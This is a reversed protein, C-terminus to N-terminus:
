LANQVGFRLIQTPVVFMNSLTKVRVFGKDQARRISAEFDDFDYYKVLEKTEDTNNLHGIFWNSTNKLINKQISSVEQTVYVFGIALKAGEKATRVWVDRTDLKDGSPLLNHAEEAYVLISPPSKGSTFAAMNNKFIKWMVREAAKRNIEPDGASQDVIVLRGAVLDDYIDDTYDTSVSGSHFVTTRGILKVGNPYELLGILKKFNEDAWDDGSAGSRGKKGGVEQGRYWAEFSTYNPTKMFLRLGNFATALRVWHPLPAKFTLAASQIEPENNGSYDRMARILESNFMGKTVAGLGEPVEYGAKALIARYALVRRKHRVTASRDDPSPAVLSVDIFSKAYISSEGLLADNIIEKGIQLNEEEYFNVKMMRRDKDSPHTQTGYTVVDKKVGKDHGRWVNRIASPVANGDVDQVNDNAYEGNYDFILQGIRGSEKNQFRLDFVSKVIIKTTNSKGTRTMGFLATKQGLLDAPAIKVPVDAVGQHARHTSAYRVDGVHFEFKALPHNLVREADRYNVIRLLADGNPKYVKLGQNPYFNSIDCGFKLVLKRDNETGVEDVYFTGVIRCRLGAFSLVHATQPDMYDENDWHAKEGSARQAAQVRVNLAEADTPLAGSDIVRLLLASTEEKTWDLTQDEVMRTAVLFALHPIGGVKQREFDHVMVLAKEYQMSYVEGIYQGAQVLAALLEKTRTAHLDQHADFLTGIVTPPQTQKKM